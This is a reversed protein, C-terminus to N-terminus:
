HTIINFYHNKLTTYGNKMKKHENVNVAFIRVCKRNKLICISVIYVLDTYNFVKYTIIVLLIYKKNVNDTDHMAYCWEDPTSERHIQMRSKM